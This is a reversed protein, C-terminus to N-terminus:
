NFCMGSESAMPSVVAAIAIVFDMLYVIVSNAVAYFPIASVSLCAGIVLADTEFSLGHATGESVEAADPAAKLQDALGGPDGDHVGVSM